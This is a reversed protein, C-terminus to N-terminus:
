DPRNEPPLIMLGDATEAWWVDRPRDFHMVGPHPAEHDCVLLEGSPLSATASCTVPGTQGRIEPCICPRLACPGGM